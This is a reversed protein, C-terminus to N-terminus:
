SGEEVGKWCSTLVKGQTSYNATCDAAMSAHCPMVSPVHEQRSRAEILYGQVGYRSGVGEGVKSGCSSSGTAGPPCSPVLAM